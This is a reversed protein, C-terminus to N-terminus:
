FVADLVSLAKLPVQPSIVWPVSPFLLLSVSLPEAKSAAVAGEQKIM